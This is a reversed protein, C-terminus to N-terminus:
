SDEKKSSNLIKQYESVFDGSSPDDTDSQVKFGHALGRQVIDELNLLEPKDLFDFAGYKIAEKMLSPDGHATYFIFPVENGSRRVERILHIGDMVPMRIDCIVCQVDENKLVELGEKGNPASLIREAYPELLLMVNEILQEEDDVILLTGKRM